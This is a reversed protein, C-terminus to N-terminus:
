QAPKYLAPERAGERLNQSLALTLGLDGVHKWTLCGQRGGSITM